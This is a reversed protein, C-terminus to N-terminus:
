NEDDKKEFSPAVYYLKDMIESKANLNNERFEPDALIDPDALMYEKIHEGIWITAQTWGESFGTVEAKVLEDYATNVIEYKAEQVAKTYAETIKM